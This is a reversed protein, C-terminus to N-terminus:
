TLRLLLPLQAGTPSGGTLGRILGQLWLTGPVVHGGLRGRAPAGGGVLRVQECRLWVHGVRSSFSSASKYFVFEVGSLSSSLWCM